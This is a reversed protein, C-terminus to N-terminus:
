GRLMDDEAVINNEYLRRTNGIRNKWSGAPPVHLPSIPLIPSVRQFPYKLEYLIVLDGQFGVAKGLPYGLKKGDGM